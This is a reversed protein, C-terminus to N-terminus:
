ADSSVALCRSYFERDERRVRQELRRMVREDRKAEALLHTFGVRRVTMPSFAADWSPFLYKLHVGRFPSTPHSRHFEVCAALLFQEITTTVSERDPIAGWVTAHQPDLVLELALSAYYRLFAVDTGGVIGCNAQRLHKGWCSRSWEWEDPLSLQDRAFGREVIRPGAVHDGLYFREPNQALVPAELLRLPLAQWLFVDTDLHIFPEEQVSYALLKGLAWLSPDVGALQDLETSVRTFRLGLHDVLLARGPSDTVLATEPFRRRALRVSLGWALLHHVPDDWGWGMGHEFPKSWFSWVARM